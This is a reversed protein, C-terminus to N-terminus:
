NRWGSQRNEQRSRASRQRNGWEALIYLSSISLFFYIERHSFNFYIARDLDRFGTILIEDGFLSDPFGTSSMIGTFGSLFALTLLM